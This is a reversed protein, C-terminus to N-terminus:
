SLLRAAPLVEPEPLLAVGVALPAAAVSLGLYVLVM